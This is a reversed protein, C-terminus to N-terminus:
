VDHADRGQVKILCQGIEAPVGWVEYDFADLIKSDDKHNGARRDISLTFIPPIRHAVFDLSWVVVFVKRFGQALSGVGKKGPMRIAVPAINIFVVPPAVLVCHFVAETDSLTTQGHSRMVLNACRHLAKEASNAHITALSGAHATNFSDLLTRAETGRVEDM